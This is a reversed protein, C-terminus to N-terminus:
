PSTAKFEIKYISLYGGWRSQYVLDVNEPLKKLSDVFPLLRALLTNDEADSNKPTTWARYYSGEKQVLYNGDGEENAWRRIQNIDGHLDDRAQLAITNFLLPTGGYDEMERVRMLLDNNVVFYIPRQSGFTSRIEALAKDSDMTLWRAMQNLRSKEASPALLLNGQLKKWLNSKFTETSPKNLWGERGSLFNIRQGDDWWSLILANEPTHTQILKATEVWISQRLATTNPTLSDHTGAPFLIANSAQANQNKYNAVLLSFADKGNKQFTYRSNEDVPFVGRLDSTKEQTRKVMLPADADQKMSSLKYQKYLLTGGAILLVGSFLVLCAQKLSKLM